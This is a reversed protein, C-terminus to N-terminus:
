LLYKLHHSSLPWKFLNVTDSAFARLHTLEQCEKFILFCFFNQTSFLSAVLWVLVLFSLTSCIKQFDDTFSKVTQSPPIVYNTLPPGHPPTLFHTVDNISWKISDFINLNNCFLELNRQSLINSQSM